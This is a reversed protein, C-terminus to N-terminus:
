LGTRIKPYKEKFMGLIQEYEKTELCGYCLYSAGYDEGDVEQWTYFGYIKDPENRQAARDVYVGEVGSLDVIKSNKESLMESMNKDARNFIKVLRENSM